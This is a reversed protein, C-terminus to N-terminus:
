MFNWNSKITILLNDIDSMNINQANKRVEESLTM